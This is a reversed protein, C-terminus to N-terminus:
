QTITSYRCNIFDKLFKNIFKCLYIAEWEEKKKKKKNEKKYKALFNEMQHINLHKNNVINMIKILVIENNPM